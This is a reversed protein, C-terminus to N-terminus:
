PVVSFGASDVYILTKGVPVILSRIIRFTGNNNLRITVTTPVTDNNYVTLEKIMRQTSAAPAAIITVATTNNSLGSTAAPTFTSSTLDVWSTVYVLQNTTVVAGLLLQITKTTTDLVQM